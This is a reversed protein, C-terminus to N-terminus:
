ASCSLNCCFQYQLQLCTPTQHANNRFSKLESAIARLAVSKVCPLTGFLPLFSWGRMSTMGTSFYRTKQDAFISWLSCHYWVEAEHGKYKAVIAESQLLQSPQGTALKLHEQSFYDRVACSSAFKYLNMFFCWIAFFFWQCVLPFASVSSRTCFCSPLM